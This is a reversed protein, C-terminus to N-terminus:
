AVGARSSKRRYWGAACILSLVLVAQTSAGLTPVSAPRASIVVPFQVRNSSSASSAVQGSKDDYVSLEQLIYSGAQTPNRVNKISLTYDGAGLTRSVGPNTNAVIVSSDLTGCLVTIGAGPGPSFDIATDSCGSWEAYAGDTSMEAPLTVKAYWGGNPAGGFNANDTTFKVTVDGVGGVLSNTSSFGTISVEAAAGFSLLWYSILIGSFLRGVKM